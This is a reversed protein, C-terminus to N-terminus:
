RGSEVGSLVSSSKEVSTQNTKKLSEFTLQDKKIAQQQLRTEADFWVKELGHEKRCAVDAVATKKELDTVVNKDIFRPDERADKPTAYNFGKAKMCSSWRSFVELVAPDKLSQRFSDADVQSAAASKKLQPAKGDVDGACKVLVKQDAGSSDVAGVSVAADYEKQLAEDPHYGRRSALEAKHIGYRSDMPSVGDIQPLDPAPTWDPYGAAAMCADILVDRAAGVKKMDAVAPTYAELPLRWTAVDDPKGVVPAAVTGLEPEGSARRDSERGGLAEWGGVGLGVVLLAAGAPVIFGKIGTRRKM